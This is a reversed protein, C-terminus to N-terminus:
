ELAYKEDGDCCKAHRQTEAFRASVSAVLFLFLTQVRYGAGYKIQSQRLLLRLREQKVSFEYIFVMWAIVKVMLCKRTEGIHSGTQGFSLTLFCPGVEPLDVPLSDVLGRLHIDAEESYEGANFINGLYPLPESKVPKPKTFM